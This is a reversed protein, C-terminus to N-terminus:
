VVAEDDGNSCGSLHLSRGGVTSASIYEVFFQEELM